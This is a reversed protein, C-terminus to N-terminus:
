LFSSFFKNFAITRDAQKRDEAIYKFSYDIIRQKVMKDTVFKKCRRLRRLRGLSEYM